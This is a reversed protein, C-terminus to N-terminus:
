GEPTDEYVGARTWPIRNNGARSFVLQYLDCAGTRFSAISTVLYLRWARVFAADFMAEVRAAAKEFRELWHELTRAYHLRLNEVDLVSMRTPEFVAMMERLSPIYAGPFIRTGMWPSMGMARHRGISHVLGRGHPALCRDIVRSLKRYHRPGVHELMGVSAFADCRDRITRYDDLVFEVRSALGRRRAQERAHAVQEESINYARVRVGYHEAMHLALAGWGCGAEVVFEGARLELKRCVHDLKALQAQELTLEPTRFYACTYVLREDLWLKYFDNGLDYHSHIDRRARRRGGRPLRARLRGWRRRIGERYPAMAFAAEVLPLLEGEVVLRGDEYAEGLGPDPRLLLDRLVSPERLRLRARPPDPATQVGVGNWLSVALSPFGQASLARRLLARQLAPVPSAM